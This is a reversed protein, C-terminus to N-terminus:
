DAGFWATSRVPFFSASKELREGGANPRVLRNVSIILLYNENM